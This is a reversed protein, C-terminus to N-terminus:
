RRRRSIVLAAGCAALLLTTSPEPVVQLGTLQIQASEMDDGAQSGTEMTLEYQHSALFDTDLNFNAVTYESGPDWPVNGSRQNFGFSWGYNWLESNSTLDLLSISGETWPGFTNNHIIIGVTQTQDVLPSFWLQSTASANAMGWGTQASVEFLSAVTIAHNINGTTNPPFKDYPLDIEDSIPSSSTTTRSISPYTTYPYGSAEVYTTYQAGSVVVNLPQAYISGVFLLSSFCAVCRVMTKHPTTLILSLFKTKSPARTLSLQNNTPALSTKMTKQIQKGQETYAVSRSPSEVWVQPGISWTSWCRSPSTEGRFWNIM